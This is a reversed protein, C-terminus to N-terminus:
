SNCMERLKRFAISRHSIKNKIEDGLEALTQKYGLPVFIPDYGFGNSGRSTDIIHGPFEGIASIMENGDFYVAACIFKAPSPKPYESLDKLLKNINDIDRADDGAYRASYIGPAGNLVDVSLGSDDAIVAGGFRQHVERAKIEANALFTAGNELIDPFAPLDNLGIISIEPLSLIEKVERLKGENRSAFIIRNVNMM